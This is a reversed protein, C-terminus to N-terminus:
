QRPATEDSINKEAGHSDGIPPEIVSNATTVIM